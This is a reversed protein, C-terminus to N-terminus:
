VAQGTCSSVIAGTFVLLWMESYEAAESNPYEGPFYSVHISVTARLSFPPRLLVRVTLNIFSLWLGWCGGVKSEVLLALCSKQSSALM